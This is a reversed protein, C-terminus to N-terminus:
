TVSGEILDKMEPRLAEEFEMPEQTMPHPFSLSYSQLALAPGQWFEFARGYRLDGLVPWSRSAAQVRIQHSRGTQLEFEALCLRHASGHLKLILPTFTLLAERAEPHSVPVVHVQHTKSDKWLSDQWVQSRGIEFSSDASGLLLAKYKRKLSNNKLSEQLRGTSKTRKGFVMLGTTNRDLRHVGGVYARGFHAALWDQLVPASQGDPQSLWGWPKSLVM